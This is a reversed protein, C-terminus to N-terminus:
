RGEKRRWRNEWRLCVSAVVSPDKDRRSCKAGCSACLNGNRMKDLGYAAADREAKVREIESQLAEMEKNQDIVILRLNMLFDVQNSNMARIGENPACESLYIAQSIQKELENLAKKKDM